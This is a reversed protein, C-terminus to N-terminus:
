LNEMGAIDVFCKSSFPVFTFVLNVVKFYNLLSITVKSEGTLDVELSVEGM